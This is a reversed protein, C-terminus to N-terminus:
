YSNSVFIPRVSREYGSLAMQQSILLLIKFYLSYLVVRTFVGAENENKVGRRTLFVLRSVSLSTYACHSQPPAQWGSVIEWHRGCRAERETREEGGREGVSKTDNKLISSLILKRRDSTFYFLHSPNM